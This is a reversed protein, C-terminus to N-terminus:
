HNMDNINYVGKINWWRWFLVCIHVLQTSHIDRQTNHSRANKGNVETQNYDDDSQKYRKTSNLLTKTEM